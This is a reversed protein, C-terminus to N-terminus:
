KGEREKIIRKNIENMFNEIEEEESFKRVELFKDNIYTELFYVNNFAQVIYEVKSSTMESLLEATHNVLELGELKKYM